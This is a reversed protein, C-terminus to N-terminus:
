FKRQKKVVIEFNKMFTLHFSQLYSYYRLAFYVLPNFYSPADSIKFVPILVEIM